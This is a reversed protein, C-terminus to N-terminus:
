HPIIAGGNEYNGGDGGGKNKKMSALYLPGTADGDFHVARNLKRKRWRAEVVLVLVFAVAVALMILPGIFGGVSGDGNTGFAAAPPALCLAIIAIAIIRM